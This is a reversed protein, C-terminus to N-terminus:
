PGQEERKEHEKTQTPQATESSNDDKKEVGRQKMRPKRGKPPKDQEKKPDDGRNYAHKSNEMGTTMEGNPDWQDWDPMGDVKTSGSPKASGPPHEVPPNPESTTSEPPNPESTTSEPPTPKSTTSDPTSTKNDRKEEAKDNDKKAWQSEKLGEKARRQNGGISSPGVEAATGPERKASPSPITNKGYGVTRTADKQPPEPDGPQQQDGNLSSLGMEAATGPGHEAPPSLITPEGHQVTRNADKQPPEPDVPQQQDKGVAANEAQHNIVDQPSAENAAKGTFTPHTLRYEKMQEPTMQARKEHNAERRQGKSLTSSIPDKKAAPEAVAPVENHPLTEGRTSAPNAAPNKSTDDKSTPKAEAPVEAHNNEDSRLTSSKLSPKKSSEDNNAPESGAPVKVHSEGKVRFPSTIQAPSEGAGEQVAPEPRVPV